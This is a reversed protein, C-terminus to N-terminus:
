RRVIRELEGQSTNGSLYVEVATHVRPPRISGGRIWDLSRLAEIGEAIEGIAQTAYQKLAMRFRWGASRFATLNSVEPGIPRPHTLIDWGGGIRLSM